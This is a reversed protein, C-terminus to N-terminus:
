ERYLYRKTMRWVFIKWDNEICIEIRVGGTKEMFTNKVYPYGRIHKEDSVFGM